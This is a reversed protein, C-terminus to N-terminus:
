ELGVLDINVLDGSVTLTQPQFRYLRSTVGLTYPGGGPVNDFQYFGFSSTTTTRRVGQPDQLFVTASRLGAGSPSTIRGSVSFSNACPGIAIGDIAPAGSVAGVPTAVGTTLNITHLTSVGAIRLVAYATNSGGQIDFGGFSTPDVGLSAVTFLQGGNPSPTGDVGGIRVLTNATSDIGFLTTLTAGANARDYAIHVVNPNTGFRPDGTAYALLTDTATLTGDAPNLRRNSEADGVVRIRDAVPNFDAGFFIDTTAPTTGGVGTIVGTTTNISVVRDSITDTAVGYLQGTAPRFDIGILFESPSTFGTLQIDSILTGPTAANFSLLHDDNFDYAYIV